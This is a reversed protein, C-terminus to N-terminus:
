SSWKGLIVLIKWIPSCWQFSLTLRWSTWFIACEAMPWSLNFLSMSLQHLSRQPFGTEGPTFHECLLFAVASVQSSLSAAKSQFTDLCFPMFILAVAKSHFACFASLLKSTQCGTMAKCGSPVLTFRSSDGVNIWELRCTWWDRSSMENCMMFDGRAVWAINLINPFALRLVLYGLRIMGRSLTSTSYSFLALELLM